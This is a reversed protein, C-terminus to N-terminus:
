LPAGMRTVCGLCTQDYYTRGMVPNTCYPCPRTQEQRAREFTKRINTAYSPTYKFEPNLISKM